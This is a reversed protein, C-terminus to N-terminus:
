RSYLTGQFHRRVRGGIGDAHRRLGAVPLARPRRDPDRRQHSGVSGPDPPWSAAADAGAARAGARSPAPRPKATM